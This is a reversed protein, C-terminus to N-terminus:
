HGQYLCTRARCVAAPPQLRFCKKRRGRGLVHPSEQLRVQHLRHRGRAHLGGRQEEDEKRMAADRKLRGQRPAPPRCRRDVHPKRCDM